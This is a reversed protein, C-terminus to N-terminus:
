NDSRQPGKFRYTFIKNLLTRFVQFLLTIVIYMHEELLIKYSIKTKLTIKSMSSAPPLSPEIFKALILTVIDFNILKKNEHSRIRM